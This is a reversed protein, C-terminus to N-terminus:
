NWKQRVGTLLFLPAFSANCHTTLSVIKSVKYRSLTFELWSLSWDSRRAEDQGPDPRNYEWTSVHQWPPWGSCTTCWPKLHISPKIFNETLKWFFDEWFHLRRGPLWVISGQSRVLSDCRCYKVKNMWVQYHWEVIQLACQAYKIGQWNNCSCIHKSNWVLPSLKASYATIFLAKWFVKRSERNM